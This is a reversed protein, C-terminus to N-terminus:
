FDLPIKLGFIPKQLVVFGPYHKWEAMFTVTTTYDHQTTAKPFTIFCSCCILKEFTIISQISDLFNGWTLKKLLVTFHVVTSSIEDWAEWGACTHVQLSWPFIYLWCSGEFCVCVGRGFFPHCDRKRELPRIWVGCFEALPIGNYPATSRLCPIFKHTQDGIVAKKGFVRPDEYRLFPHAVASPFTHSPQWPQCPPFNQIWYSATFPFDSTRLGGPECCAWLEALVVGESRM